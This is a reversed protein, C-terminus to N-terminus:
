AGLLTITDSTLNFQGDDSTLFFTRRDDTLLVINVSPATSVTISDGPNVAFLYDVAQELPFSGFQLNTGIGIFCAQDATIYIFSTARNFPASLHITQDIVVPVQQLIGPTQPFEASDRVVVESFEWIYLPM